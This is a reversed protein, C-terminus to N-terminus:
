SRSSPIIAFATTAPAAQGVLIAGAPARDLTSQATGTGSTTTVTLIEGDEIDTDVSPRSSRQVSGQLSQLLGAGEGFGKLIPGAKAM